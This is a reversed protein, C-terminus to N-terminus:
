QSRQLAIVGIAAIANLVGLLVFGGSYGGTADRLAGTVAPLLLAALNGAGIVAALAAGEDVTTDAAVRYIAGFPFSVALMAVLPTFVTIAPLQSVALIGFGIGATALATAITEWDRIRWQESALGGVARGGTAIFLVIANLPGSVGLADFYVTIFTSLTVYSGLSAVYCLAAVVVIPHTLVRRTSRWNSVIAEDTRELQDSTSAPRKTATNAAHSSPPKTIAENRHQWCAVVAVGGLLVGPSHLGILRTETLLVPVVLFAFAGGLTLVGGYLGQQRTAATGRYLRAIHTAGVTLVLGCALGWVTRLTLLTLATTTFDLAIALVAHLITAALLIRTTSYRATLYSSPAQVLVVSLLPASTLLGFITYGIGFRSTLIEPIAAPAFLVYGVSTVALFPLLKLTTSPSEAPSSM